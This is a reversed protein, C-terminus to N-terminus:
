IRVPVSASVLVLWLVLWLVLLLVLLLWLVCPKVLVPALFAWIRSRFSPPTLLRLCILLSSINDLVYGDTLTGETLLEALQQLRTAVNGIHTSHM